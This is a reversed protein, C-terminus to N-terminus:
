PPLYLVPDRCPPDRHIAHAGGQSLPYGALFPDADVALGDGQTGGGGTPPHQEIVFGFPLDTGSFVRLAARGDELVQWEYPVALPNRHPSEVDIGTAEDDECGVAFQGVAEHVGGM